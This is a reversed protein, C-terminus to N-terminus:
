KGEGAGAAEIIVEKAVVEGSPLKTGVVHVSQGDRLDARTVHEAGHEVTLAPAFTVRVDGSETKLTMGGGRVSAVTGGIAKGRHHSADHAFAPAAALIMVLVASMLRKM